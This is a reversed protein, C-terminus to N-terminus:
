LRECTSVKAIYGLIPATHKESVNTGVCCICPAMAQCVVFNITMMLCIEFTILIFIMLRDLVWLLNNSCTRSLSITLITWKEFRQLGPHVCIEERGAPQYNMSRLAAWCSDMRALHGQCNGGGGWRTSFIRLEKWIVYNSMEDRLTSIIVTRVDMIEVTVVGNTQQVLNGTGWFM